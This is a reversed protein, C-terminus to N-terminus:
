CSLCGPVGGAHTTFSNEDLTTVQIDKLLVLCANVSHGGHRTSDYSRPKLLHLLIGARRSSMSWHSTAAFLHIAPYILHCTNILFLLLDPPPLPPLPLILSFHPAGSTELSTLSHALLATPRVTWATPCLGKHPPTRTGRSQSFVVLLPQPPAHAGRLPPSPRATPSPGPSAAPPRLNEVSTARRAASQLPRAPGRLCTPPRDPQPKPQTTQTTLTPHQLPDRGAPLLTSNPDPNKAQM